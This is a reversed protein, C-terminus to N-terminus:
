KAFSYYYNNQSFSIDLLQGMEELSVFVYGDNVLTDIAKLTAEVSIEYVDHLLVVCGDSASSVIREHIKDSSNTNWDLTDVNWLVLSMESINLINKNFNGYPPRLLKPKIGIINEILTNTKNIENLIEEDSLNFLNKHSYTHNGITHGELYAREVIEPYTSARNGLVFFTVKADRENLGDLLKETNGLVPGDDFTLAIYKKGKLQNLDRINRDTVINNSFDKMVIDTHKYNLVDKFDAYNFSISISGSSWPGVQYPPFIVNIKDSDLSLLRFNDFNAEIGSNLWDNASYIVENYNLKLEELSLKSLRNLAEESNSFINNWNVLKDKKTDYYYMVDEEVYHAGSYYKSVMLHISYLSSFTKIDYNINLDFTTDNNGEEDKINNVTNIFDTIKDDVFGSIKKNVERNSFDPYIVNMTYIDTIDIIHKTVYSDNNDKYFILMMGFIIIGIITLFFLILKM